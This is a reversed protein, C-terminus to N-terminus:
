IGGSGARAADPVRACVWADVRQVGAGRLARAAADLTAGTTMVDDFLVVHAPLRHRAAVHFAGHLNAQRQAADLRSQSRTARGRVLVDSALAIGLRRAVPRALELAQDYGRQRLRARHLPVPILLAPRPAADFASCLHPTLARTVALTNHFKLRPLLRDVPFAYRFAAVSADLALPRRACDPCELTTEALPLACRPCARGNRPLADHCARCLDDRVGDGDACVLCRAPWCWRASAAIFPRCRNVANLM